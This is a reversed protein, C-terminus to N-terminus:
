DFEVNVTVFLSESKPNNSASSWFLSDFKSKATSTDASNVYVSDFYDAFAHAVESPKNSGNVYIEKTLNCRFKSVWCKWFEPIRKNLLHDFLM